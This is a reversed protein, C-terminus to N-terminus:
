KLNFLGYYIVRLKVFNTIYITDRLHWFLCFNLKLFFFWAYTRLAVKSVFTICTLLLGKVFFIMYKILACVICILEYGLWLEESISWWLCSRWPRPWSDFSKSFINMDLIEFRSFIPISLSWFWWPKVTWCGRNCIIIWTILLERM